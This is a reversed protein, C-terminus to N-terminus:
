ASKRTRMRLIDAMHGVLLAMAVKYTLCKSAVKSSSVLQWSAGRSVSM